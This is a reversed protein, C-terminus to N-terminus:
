RKNTEERLKLGIHQYFINNFTLNAITIRSEIEHTCKGFRNEKVSLYKFYEVNKLWKQDMM